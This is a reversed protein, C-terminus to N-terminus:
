TRYWQRREFSSHLPAFHVCRLASLGASSALVCGQDEHLRAPLTLHFHEPDASLRNTDLLQGTSASNHGQQAM